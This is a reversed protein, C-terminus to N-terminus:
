LLRRGIVVLYDCHTLPKILVRRKIANSASDSAVGRIQIPERSAWPRLYLQLDFLLIQLNRCHVTERPGFQAM